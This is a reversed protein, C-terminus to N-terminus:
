AAPKGEIPRAFRAQAADQDTRHIVADAEM